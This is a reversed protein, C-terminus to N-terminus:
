QVAVTGDAFKMWKVNTMRVEPYAGQPDAIVTLGNTTTVQFYSRSQPPDFEITNTGGGGDIATFQGSIYANSRNLNLSTLDYTMVDGNIIWEPRPQSDGTLPMTLHSASKPDIVNNSLYYISLDQIQILAGASANSFSIQSLTAVDAIPIVLTQKDSWYGGSSSTLKVSDAMVTASGVKTGGLFIDMTYTGAASFWGSVGLRIWGTALPSVTILDDGNGANIEDYGGGLYVKNDGGSTYIIDRGPGGMITNVTHYTAPQHLYTGILQEAQTGEFETTPGALSQTVKRANGQAVSALQEGTANPPTTWTQYVWPEYGMVGYSTVFESLNNNIFDLMSKFGTAQLVPDYVYSGEVMLRGDADIGSLLAHDWNWYSLAAITLKKNYQRSLNILNTAFNNGIDSASYLQRIILAPDYIPTASIAPNFSIGIVDMLDWIGVRNFWYYGHPRDAGTSWYNGELNAEYSITGTYSTRITDVIDVWQQHYETTILQQMDSGAYLLVVSHAQLVPSLEAYYLKVKNLFAIANFQTTVSTPDIPTSTGALNFRSVFGVSLGISRVYEMMRLMRDYKHSTVVSDILLGSPAVEVYCDFMVGTYGIQKIHNLLRQLTPDDMNASIGDTAWELNAFRQNLGSTSTISPTSSTVSDVNVWYGDSSSFPTEFTKYGHRNIYDLLGASSQTELSPAYFKWRKNSKDWAWITQIRKSASGLSSHLSANLASPMKNDASGVLNWGPQLDSEALTAGSPTPGSLAATTAANVWFGEKSAISTLLDYGKGQAYTALDASTMSPAYFAWKSATKNWTWVSNIKSADGLTTAVDIPAASSNGMLNWGTTLNLTVQASANGVLMLLFAIKLALRTRTIILDPMSHNRLTVIFSSGTM